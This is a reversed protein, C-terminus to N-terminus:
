PEPRPSPGRPGSAPRRASGPAAPRPSPRYASTNRSPASRGYSSSGSSPAAATTSARRDARVPRNVPRTYTPFVTRGPGARMARSDERWYMSQTAAVPRRYISRPETDRWVVFSDDVAMVPPQTLPIVDEDQRGDDPPPLYPPRYSICSGIPSFGGYCTQYYSYPQPYWPLGYHYGFDYSSAYPDRFDDPIVTCGAALWGSALLLLIVKRM